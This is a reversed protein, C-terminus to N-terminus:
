RKKKSPFNTKSKRGNETNVSQSDIAEGERESQSSTVHAAGVGQKGNVEGGMEGSSNSERALEGYYFVLICSFFLPDIGRPCEFLKLAEEGYDRIFRRTALKFLNCGVIVPLRTKVGKSSTLQRDTKVLIGVEPITFGGITIDCTFYRSLPIQNEGAGRLNFLNHANEGGNTPGQILPSINQEFYSQTMLTVM